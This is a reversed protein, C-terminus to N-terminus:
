TVMPLGGKFSAQLPSSGSGELVMIILQPEGIHSEMM